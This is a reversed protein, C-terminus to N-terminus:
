KALVWGAKSVSMVVNSKLSDVNKSSYASTLYAKEFEGDLGQLGENTSYKSSFCERRSFWLYVCYVELLLLLGSVIAEWWFENRMFAM